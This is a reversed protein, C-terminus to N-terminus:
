GASARPLFVRFTSGRGEESEVRVFGGAYRTVQQVVALGVGTGQGRPKTTFFPTFIRTRLHPAIGCGEDAVSIVVFHGTQGAEDRELRCAVSVRIRGGGPMADRANVVLNLVVRELQLPDILVRDAGSGLEFELTHREGAAKELLPRQAAVVEAPRVMRSARRRPRAFDTLEAALACGRRGAAVIQQTLEALHPPCASDSRILEANGLVVGLINNFDHAIGAATEALESLHRAEALQATQAQVTARLEELEAAKMKLALLDAMSGAFDREETTWERPHGIHEHCLVGVIEGGLSIPADLLAAIGLPELYAEALGGTRADHRADEAPVTKRQALAEFYAPFEQTQLTTGASHERRSREFLNVCRLAKREEVFLWVGVREVGLVEASEETVREFVTALPVGDEVRFRSLTLRAADAPRTPVSFDSTM